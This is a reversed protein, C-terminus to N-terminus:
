AYVKIRFFQCYLKEKINKERDLDSISRNSHHEEDIEIALNLMPCYGDLFYGAVRHQRLITYGFNKELIDLVNTEYKGVTFSTKYGTEEYIKKIQKCRAERLKRRTEESYKYNRRRKTELGRKISEPTPKRGKNALYLKRKMKESMKKGKNWATKGKMPNVYGNKFKLKMTESKKRNTEESVIYTKGKCPNIYGEKESNWRRTETRKKISEPSLKRGRNPSIYGNEYKKNITNSLKLKQKKSMKEGKNM